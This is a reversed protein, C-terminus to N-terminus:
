ISNPIKRQPFKLSIFLVPDAQNFTVDFSRFFRCAFLPPMHFHVTKEKRIKTHARILFYVLHGRAGAVESAVGRRDRGGGRLM